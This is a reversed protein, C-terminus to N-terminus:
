RAAPTNEASWINMLLPHPAVDVSPWGPLQFPM